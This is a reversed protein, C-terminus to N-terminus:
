LTGGPYVEERSSWTREAVLRPPIQRWYHHNKLWSICTASAFIFNITIIMSYTIQNYVNLNQLAKLCLTKDCDAHPISNPLNYDGTILLRANQYAIIIDTYCGKIRFFCQEQNNDTLTAISWRWPSM